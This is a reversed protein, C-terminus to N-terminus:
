SIVLVWASVKVLICIYLTGYTYQIHYTFYWELPKLLAKFEIGLTIQVDTIVDFFDFYIHKGLNDFCVFLM